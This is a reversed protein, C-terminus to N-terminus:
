PAASPSVKVCKSWEIKVEVGPNWAVGELEVDIADSSKARHFPTRALLTGLKLPKAGPAARVLLPLDDRRLARFRPDDM